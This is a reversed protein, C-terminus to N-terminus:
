TGPPPSAWRRATAQPIGTTAEIQRWSGLRRHLAAIVAGGNRSNDIRRRMARRAGEALDDVLVGTRDTLPLLDDLAAREDPTLDDPTLDDSM